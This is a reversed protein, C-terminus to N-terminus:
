ELKGRQLQELLYADFNGSLLAGRFLGPLSGNLDLKFAIPHGGYLDPNHGDLKLWLRYDGNAMYDIELDLRSYHFNRLAQLGPNDAVQTPPQYRLLGPGTASLRGGRVEVGAKSWALPLRGSLRGSGSLGKLDIAALLRALDLGEADLALRGPAPPLELGQDLASLRGDFLGAEFRRLLLHQGSWGLGLQAASLEVGAALGLRGLNFELAGAIPNPGQPTLELDLGSAQAKDWGLAAQHLKLAGQLVPNADRCARLSLSGESRGGQLRLPQWARPRPVWLRDLRALDGQHKFEATTCADALTHRIDFSLLKEEGLGVHGQASLQRGQWRWRAAISTAPWGPRLATAPLRLHGKLDRLALDTGLALTLSNLTLPLPTWGDLQLNLPLSGSVTSRDSALSLTQALRTQVAWGQGQLPKAHFQLGPLLEVRWDPRSSDPRAHLRLGGDLDIRIPTPAQDIRLKLARADIRTM